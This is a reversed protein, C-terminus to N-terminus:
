RREAIHDVHKLPGVQCASMMDPADRLVVEVALGDRRFAEPLSVPQVRGEATELVWCGTEVQVFRVTADQRGPEQSTAGSRPDCACLGMMMSLVLVCFKPQSRMMQIEGGM